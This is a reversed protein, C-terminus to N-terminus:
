VEYVYDTNMITLTLLLHYFNSHSSSLVLSYYCFLIFFLLLSVCIYSIDDSENNASLASVCMWGYLVCM